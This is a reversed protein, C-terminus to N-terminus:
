SPGQKGASRLLFANVADLQRVLRDEDAQRWIRRAVMTSEEGSRKLLVLWLSLCLDHIVLIAVSVGGVLEYGLYNRVLLGAAVGLFYASYVAAHLLVNRRIPVPTWLLFFTILLLFVVLSFTLGREVVGLYVLLPYRGSPGSLDAPLAVASALVAVSMAGLLVWRSLSAIGPHNRLSLSYLELVVLIYLIWLLPQTGIYVWAYLNSAPDLPLMGASQIAQFNIFLFFWFYTRFLRTWALKTSVALLLVFNLVWLVQEAYGM